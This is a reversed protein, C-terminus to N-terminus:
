KLLLFSTIFFSFSSFSSSLVRTNEWAQHLLLFYSFFFTTLKRHSSSLPLLSGHRNSSDCFFLLSQASRISTFRFFSVTHGVSIRHGASRYWLIVIEHAYGSLILSEKTTKYREVLSSPWEVTVFRERTWFWFVEIFLCFSFDWLRMIYRKSM